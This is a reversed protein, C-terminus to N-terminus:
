SLRSESRAGGVRPREATVDELVEVLLQIPIPKRLVRRATKGDIAHGSLVVVPLAPTIGKSALIELLETGSMVPMAVDLVVVDPKPSMQLLLDLAVRGNEAQLVYYGREKLDTAILDRLEDDDDVLLVTRKREAGQGPAGFRRAESPEHGLPPLAFSFTSGKAVESQVDVTGGHAVVLQRVIMLGLGTGAVTHNADLARAYRTFLKPVAAPEIGPGSDHVRVVVAGGQRVCEVRVTAGPPSFKIANSLLNSAVQALRRKDGLVRYHEEPADLVLAVSKSEATPQFDDVAERMLDRLDLPARSLDVETAEMRALDLFDGVMAVLEYM